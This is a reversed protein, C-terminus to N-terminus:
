RNRSLNKGKVSAALEKLKGVLTVGKVIKSLQEVSASTFDCEQFCCAVHPGSPDLIRCLDLVKPIIGANALEGQIALNTHSLKLLAFAAHEHMLLTEVGTCM